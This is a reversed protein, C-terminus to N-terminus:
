RAGARALRARHNVCPAGGGAPCDAPPTAPDFDEGCNSCTVFAARADLDYAWAPRGTGPHPTPATM